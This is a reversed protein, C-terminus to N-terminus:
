QLVLYLPLALVVASPITHVIIGILASRYRRSPYAMAFTDILLTEPIVWPM